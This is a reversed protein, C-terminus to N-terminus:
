GQFADKARRIKAFIDAPDAGAGGVREALAPDDARLFPNQVREDALLAPITPRGKARAAAIEAARAKLSANDPDISLAFRANAASYEHGCYIKTDGPLTKLRALGTWMSKPEGEFMRGCGLSFLADGTFLNPGEPDFYAIHGLTHGPTDFITFTTEGLRVHDGGAVQEDLGAIKGSEARPGIVKAGFQAKLPAIAATHDEHHHTILIHSLTWGTRKLAAKIPALEPADIAATQGTQTDHALYGFNDSRCTFIDIDLAM